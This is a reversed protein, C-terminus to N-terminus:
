LVITLLHYDSLTCVNYAVLDAQQVLPRLDFSAEQGTRHLSGCQAGSRAMDCPSLLSWLLPIAALIYM